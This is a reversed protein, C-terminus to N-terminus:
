GRLLHLRVRNSGNAAQSCETCSYAISATPAVAIALLGDRRSHYIEAVRAPPSIQLTFVNCTTHPPDINRTMSGGPRVPGNRFTPKVPEGQSWEKPILLSYADRACWNKDLYYRGPHSTIRSIASPRHLRFHSTLQTPGVRMCPFTFVLFLNPFDVDTRDVNSSHLFPHSPQSAPTFSTCSSPLSSFSISFYHFSLPCCRSIRSLQLSLFYPLPYLLM